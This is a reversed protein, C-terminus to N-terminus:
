MKKFNENNTHSNDFIMCCNAGLKVLKYTELEKGQDVVIYYM